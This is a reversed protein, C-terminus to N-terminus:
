SYQAATGTSVAATAPLLIGLITGPALYKRSHYRQRARTALLCCASEFTSPPQMGSGYWRDLNLNAPQHAQLCVAVATGPLMLKNDAASYSVQYRICGCCYTVGPICPPKIALGGQLDVGAAGIHSQDLGTTKKVIISTGGDGGIDCGRCGSLTPPYSDVSLHQM